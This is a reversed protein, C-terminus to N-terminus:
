KVDERGVEGSYFSGFGHRIFPFFWDLLAASWWLPSGDLLLSEKEIKERAKLWLRM